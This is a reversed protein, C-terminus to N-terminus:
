VVLMPSGVVLGSEGRDSSDAGAEASGKGVSRSDTGDVIVFVLPDGLSSDGSFIKDDGAGMLFFKKKRPPSDAPFGFHPEGEPM